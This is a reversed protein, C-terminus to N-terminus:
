LKSCGFERVFLFSNHRFPFSQFACLFIFLLALGRGGLGTLENPFFHVVNTFALM